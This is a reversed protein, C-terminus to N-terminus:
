FLHVKKSIDRLKKSVRTYCGLNSSNVEDRNPGMCKGSCRKVSSKIDSMFVFEEKEKNRRVTAKIKSKKLETRRGPNVPVRV